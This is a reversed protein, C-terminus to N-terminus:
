FLRPKIKKLDKKTEIKDVILDEKYFKNLKFTNKIINNIEDDNFIFKHTHYNYQSELFRTGIKTLISLTYMNLEYYDYHYDFKKIKDEYNQLLGNKVDIELDDIAFNDYDIFYPTGDKTVMINNTLDGCVINLKHLIKLQKSIEKLVEINKKKRFSLATFKDGNVVPMTYGIITGNYKILADAKVVSDNNELRENLLIIKKTKNEINNPDKFLKFIKKKKNEVFPHITSEETDKELTYETLKELQKDNIRFIKM